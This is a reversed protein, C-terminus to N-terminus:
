ININLIIKCPVKMNYDVFIAITVIWKTERVISEGM